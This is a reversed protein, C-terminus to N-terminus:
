SLFFEIKSEWCKPRSSSMMYPCWSNDHCSTMSHSIFTMLHQNWLHPWTILFVHERKQPCYRQAHLHTCTTNHHNMTCEDQVVPFGPMDALDGHHQQKWTNGGCCWQTFLCVPHWFITNCSYSTSLFQKFWTTELIAVGQKFLGVVNCELKDLQSPCFDWFARLMACLKQVSM